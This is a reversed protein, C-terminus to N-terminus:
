ASTKTGSITRLLAGLFGGSRAGSSRQVGSAASEDAPGAPAAAAPPQAAKDGLVQPTEIPLEAIGAHAALSGTMEEVKHQVQGALGALGAGVKHGLGETHGGRGGSGAESPGAEADLGLRHTVAEAANELTDVVRTVVGGARSEAGGSPPEGATSQEAAQRAASQVAHVGDQVAQAARSTTDSLNPVVDTVPPAPPAGSHARVQSSGQQQEAKVRGSQQRSALQGIPTVVGPVGSRTSGRRGLSTGSGEGTKSSLQRAPGPPPHSLREDYEAAADSSAQSLASLVTVAGHLARGTMSSGSRQVGPSRVQPATGGSAQPRPSAAAQAPPHAQAEEAAAPAMLNLLGPQTAPYGLATPAGPHCAEITTPIPLVEAHLDQKVAAAAMQQVQSATPPVLAAEIARPSRASRTNPASCCNALSGPNSASLVASRYLGHIQGTCVVATGFRV